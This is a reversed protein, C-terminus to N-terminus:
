ATALARTAGVWVSDSVMGTVHTPKAHLHEEVETPAGHEVMPSVVNCAVGAAGHLTALDKTWQNILGELM